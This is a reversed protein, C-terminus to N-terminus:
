VRKLIQICLIIGIIQLGGMLLNVTETSPSTWGASFYFVFSLFGGGVLGSLLITIVTKSFGRAMGYLISGGIVLGSITEGWMTLFGFMAAQPLVMNTLLNKVVGYPNKSAFFGITKAMGSVFEGGYLKEMGSRVWIFAVLLLM